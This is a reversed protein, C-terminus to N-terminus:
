FLVPECTNPNDVVVLRDSTTLLICVISSPPTDLSFKNCAYFGQQTAEAFVYDDKVAVTVTSGTKFIRYKYVNEYETKYAHVKYKRYYLNLDYFRVVFGDLCVSDCWGM